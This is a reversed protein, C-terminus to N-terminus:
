KKDRPALQLLWVKLGALEPQEVLERARTVLDAAESRKAMLEERALMITALTRVSPERAQRIASQYMERGLDPEGRRYRYLGLTATLVARERANLKERKIAALHHEAEEVRNMSLLCFAANNRLLFEDPNAVIGRRAFKLGREYDRDSSAEYSGFEAPRSAFPQDALWSWSEDAALKPNGVRHAALARAEWATPEALSKDDIDLGIRPAAWEAQAVSNDTPDILARRFLKRAERDDGAGLELTALASALESLEFDSFRGAQIMAEARRVNRPREDALEAVALEAALLWPDHPTRKSRGLIGLAADPKREHLKLRVASRLVYRNEPALALAVTMARSAMRQHGTITYLRAIDAWRLANRPNERLGRRLAAMRQGHDRDVVDARIEEVGGEAERLLLDAIRKSMPAADLADSLLRAAKLAPEATGVVFAAAVLDAAYAHGGRREFEVARKAVEERDDARIHRQGITLPDLEGRALTAAFSRWRPIIRRDDRPPASV